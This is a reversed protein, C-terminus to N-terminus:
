AGWRARLQQEVWLRGPGGAHAYAFRWFRWKLKPLIAIARDISSLVEHPASELSQRARALELQARAVRLTREYECQVGGISRAVGKELVRVAWGLLRASNASMNGGWVRYKFQPEWVGLAYIRGEAIRLWMDWDEVARLEPDFPGAKSLTEKKIVVSSPAFLNFRRLERSVDGAPFRRKKQYRTRLTTTGDWVWYNCFLFNAKANDKAISLQRELKSPIWVDDGDLLAVWEGTAQAIGTNRAASLGYNQDHKLVKFRPEERAYKSMLSATGDSSGDDVLLAEWASFTQARLSDLTEALFREGNFVPVIVSVMAKM